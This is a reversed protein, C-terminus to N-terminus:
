YEYAGHEILLKMIAEHGAYSSAELANRYKRGQANVDAGKFILLKAIAEHGNYSAAQLATGHHGGQANADAGQDILLKAVAEHGQFSAAQLANGFHGGTANVDAGKAILLTAVAEHGQYSAAQLANGFHGGTANVDAGKEILLKAIAEHGEYLAAQLANGYEGGQANVNARNDLLLKVIAEHGKYSAASLANGYYGGQANVDARMNLLTYSAETMGALLAYYLPKAIQDRQRQLHRTYYKDINCLQDWNFLAANEETLLKMMLAFVLSSQFKNIGSSHMHSIWYKAAYNALPSSVDVSLDLPESTKCQLLYGLCIQSIVSHSLEENFSFDRIHIMSHNQIYQSTLYEKVSFHSLKILGIYYYDTSM